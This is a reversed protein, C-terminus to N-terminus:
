SCVQNVCLDANDAAAAQIGHRTEGAHALNLLLSWKSSRRIGVNEPRQLAALHCKERAVGTAVLQQGAFQIEAGVDVAKLLQSDLAYNRDRGHARELFLM